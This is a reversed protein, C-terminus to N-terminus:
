WKKKCQKFKKWLLNYFIKYKFKEEEFNKSITQESKPEYVQDNESSLKLPYGKEEKREEEPLLNEVVKKKWEQDLVM